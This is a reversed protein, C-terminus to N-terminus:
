AFTEEQAHLQKMKSLGEVVSNVQACLNKIEMDWKLLTQADPDADGQSREGGGRGGATFDLVGDVQDISAGALRGDSVMKSVVAESDGASLGLLAGLGSFSINRYVRSVALVNHEALARAFITRNQSDRCQCHPPLTSEFDDAESKYIIEGGCM